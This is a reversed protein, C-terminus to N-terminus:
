RLWWNYALEIIELMSLYSRSFRTLDRVSVARGCVRKKKHPPRIM